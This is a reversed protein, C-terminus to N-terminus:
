GNTSTFKYEYPISLADLWAHMKRYHESSQRANYRRDRIKDEAVIRALAVNPGNPFRALYSEPGIRFHWDAM